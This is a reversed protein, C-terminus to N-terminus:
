YIICVKGYEKGSWRAVHIKGPTWPFIIPFETFCSLPWPYQSVRYCSYIIMLWVPPIDVADKKPYLSEYTPPPRDDLVVGAAATVGGDDDEVASYPPPAVTPPPEPTDTAPTNPPLYDFSPPPDAAAARAQQGSTRCTSAHLRLIASAPWIFSVPSIKQNIISLSGDM